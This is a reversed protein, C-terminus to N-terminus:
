PQRSRQEMSRDFCELEERSCTGRVVKVLDGYDAKMAARLIFVRDRLSNMDYLTGLFMAVDAADAAGKEPRREEDWKFACLMMVLTSMLYRDAKLLATCCKVCKDLDENQYHCMALLEWTGQLNGTLLEGKNVSGHKDLIELARELHYAGKKFDQKVVYFRGAVYDYDCEKPIHRVAKEYIEMMAKEDNKKYLITMLKWFTVASRVDYEDIHEPMRDISKRYWEEAEANRGTVSYYADGLYGMMDYDDPHEELEMLILRANREGKQKDESSDLDYGSHFIALEGSADVTSDVINGGKLELEEHIRKRYQLEQMRKFIRTQVGGAFIKEERNVHMWSTLMVCYRTRALQNLLPMLKKAEEPPFYEDADLFAIWDGSAKSIAYNKAAAFDDIWQFHYVKAGMALALEVTRDTSGTDVVIQEYVLDKGWSLAREINKEEDRVIMCQSLRVDKGRM